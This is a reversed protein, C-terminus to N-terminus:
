GKAAQNVDDQYVYSDMAGVKRCSLAAAITARTLSTAWDLGQDLGAVFTGEFCDGAGNTDIVEDIPHASCEFYEGSARLAMVGDGGLTVIVDRHIKHVLVELTERPTLAVLNLQAALATLEDLNVVLIDALHAMEHSYPKIPSLNLLTTCGTGRTRALMNEIRERPLCLGTMLFTGPRLISDPIQDDHAERNAAPSAIQTNVGDGEYLVCVTGTPQTSSHGIGSTVVGEHRLRTCLRDGFEDDGVMGIMHVRAGGRAAAVAQNAGKGGCLVSVPGAGIIDGRGPWKEIPFCVDMFLSGFVIIM